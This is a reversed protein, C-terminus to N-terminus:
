PDPRARRRGRDAGRHIGQRGRGAHLHHHQPQDADARGGAGRPDHRKGRLRRSLGRAEDDPDDGLGDGVRGGGSIGVRRRVAHSGGRQVHGPRGACPGGAVQRVGRHPRCHRRVADARRHLHLLPHGPVFVREHGLDDAPLGSGAAPRRVHHGHHVVARHRLGGARRDRP